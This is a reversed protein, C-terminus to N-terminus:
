LLLMVCLVVGRREKEEYEEFRTGISLMFLM